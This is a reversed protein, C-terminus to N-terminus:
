SYIWRPRTRPRSVMFAKKEREVTAADHSQIVAHEVVEVPRDDDSLGSWDSGELDEDDEGDELNDETVQPQPSPRRVELPKFRAEFARQFRARIADEDESADDNQERKRKSNPAAM